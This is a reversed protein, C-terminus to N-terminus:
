PLTFQNAVSGSVSISGSDYLTEGIDYYGNQNSDLFCRMVYSGPVLYSPTDAGSFGGSSISFFASGAWDTLPIVQNGNITEYLNNKGSSQWLSHGDLAPICIYSGDALSAPNVRLEALSQFDVLSASIQIVREPNELQFEPIMIGQRLYGADSSDWNQNGNRDVFIMVTGNETHHDLALSGIYRGASDTHHQFFLGRSGAGNADWYRIAIGKQIPLGNLSITLWVPNDYLDNEDPPSADYHCGTALITLLTLIPITRKM